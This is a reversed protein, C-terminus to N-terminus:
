RSSHKIPRNEKPLGPACLMNYMSFLQKRYTPIINNDEILKSQQFIRITESKQNWTQILADYYVTINMDMCM